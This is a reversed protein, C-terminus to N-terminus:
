KTVKVAEEKKEEDKKKKKPPKATPEFIGGTTADLHNWTEKKPDYIHMVHHPKPKQPVADAPDIRGYFTIWYEIHIDVDIHVSNTLDVNQASGSWLWEVTPVTSTASSYLAEEVRASEIGFVKKTSIYNSLAAPGSSTAEYRTFKSYTREGDAYPTGTTADFEPAPWTALVVQGQVNISSIRFMCKSSSAFYNRYKTIWQDWGRPQGGSVAYEPDYPANGRMQWLAKTTTFTGGTYSTRYDLKVTFEDPWPADLSKFVGTTPTGMRPKRRGHHRGKHEHHRRHRRRGTTLLPTRQFLALKRETAM